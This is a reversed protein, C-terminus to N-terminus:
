PPAGDPVISPFPNIKPTEAVTRANAKAVLEACDASADTLTSGTALLVAAVGAVIRIQGALFVDRADGVLALVVQQVRQLAEAGGRADAVRRRHVLRQGAGRGGICLQSGLPSRSQPAPRTPYGAPARTPAPLRARRHLQFGDDVALLALADGIQQAPGITVLSFHSWERVQMSDLPRGDLVARQVRSQTFIGLRSSRFLM